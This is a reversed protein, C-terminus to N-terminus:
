AFVDEGDGFIGVGSDGGVRGALNAEHDAGLIGISTQTRGHTRPRSLLFLSETAVIVLLNM